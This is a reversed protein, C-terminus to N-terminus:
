VKLDRVSAIKPTLCAFNVGAKHAALLGLAEMYSRVVIIRDDLELSAPTVSMACINEQVAIILTKTDVLSLVAPGGCAGAPVVLADIDDRWIDAEQPREHGTLISPARALNVLVCPLFTHGLEEACARPSLGPEVDLPGLAPAHACPVRLEKTILHSIIAEAGGVADVGEGARYNALMQEDEDDPFRAVVAIATCGASVLRRAAALLADPQGLTGWSAGAPSMQIQVGLPADTCTYAAVNIGLTARAADAAQLHRLMLDEEIACDLLLGVRQSSACRLGWRGAAVEDLAFGETYILAPDTWYMQAGNMVNPHTIVRDAVASFARAVPLADGAYGGIAAGIGTPVVLAATYPRTTLRASGAGDLPFNAARRQVAHRQSNGLNQHLSAQSVSDLGLSTICPWLFLM